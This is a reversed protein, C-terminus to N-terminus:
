EYRLAVMPDVKAARRAPVLCAVLAVGTLIVPVVIFTLTDTATVSFLLGAMLRTLGFAAVLGLAVGLLTLKLGQNIVLKLVDWNTAGLAMRIGIEHTRQNVVYSMVGYIGIISLILALGAFIGLLITRFRQTSASEYLWQDMVKVDAVPQNPNIAMVEKRVAPALSAADGKVRIVLNTWPLTLSPLYIAQYANGELSRHHVDGVIGIIEFSKDKMFDFTLQKGLPDDEPFFREAVLKSIIAVGANQRAEQQSFYRGKVLPIGMAQFYDQNARRFDANMTQSPDPARGDISFPADNPQGTLPLESVMGVYEVGPLASVRQQLEDHFNAWQEPKTDKTRPLDLRLTLVNEARFGPQVNQLKIFSKILLGAGILLVVALASEAVILLSRTRNRKAGESGGRGGEKLTENLNPKSVQLAPVIGFLIGTLCAVGFTFALVVFDVKIEAARPIDQGGFTILLEVCWMAVLVGLAGGISSLILSETLMQRVIRWRKAGLASRIAIEKQRSASRVLLLNAVNACAILLVFAVAGLLILLTPKINGVIQEQLSVLRLGWNTNSDPYQEELQRAILDMEAQAQQISVGPKLRGIPRLFHAKRVKMEPFADFSLPTWMQANSPFRFAPPMVGIITYSKGDLTLPQNLIAKDGGFRRQWLHHSLIVVQGQGAQEEEVIFDRGLAPKIGLAQFYNTTIAAGSIREPEGSSTLNSSVPISIAAALHEFSQNQQRYDLFDPPSVSAQSTRGRIDGWMWVVQEPKEYPLARVLVANIVSFIATNAGIGLALTLLAIATFGRSKLLMRIAYRIDQYLNEVVVGM